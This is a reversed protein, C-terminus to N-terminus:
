KFHNIKSEFSLINSDISNKSFDFEIIHFLESTKLFKPQAYVMSQSASLHIEIKFLARIIAGFSSSIVSSKAIARIQTQSIESHFQSRM